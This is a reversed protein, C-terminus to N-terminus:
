VYTQLEFEPGWVQLALEKWVSSHEWGGLMQKQSIFNIFRLLFPLLWKPSIRNIYVQLFFFLFLWTFVKLSFLIVFPGEFYCLCYSAWTYRYGALLCFLIVFEVKFCWLPFVFHSSRLSNFHASLLSFKWETSLVSLPKLTLPSVTQGLYSFRSYFPM